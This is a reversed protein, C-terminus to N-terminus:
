YVSVAVSGGGGRSAWGNPLGLVSALEDRWHMLQSGLAGFMGRSGVGYFEVEDVKKISGEGYVTAMKERVADIKRLIDKAISIPGELVVPVTGSHAKQLQLTAVTAALAQITVVEARSDVDVVVRDGAAFGTASALTVSVPVPSTVAAVSLSATTSVEADICENIVSEFVPTYGIYPLSAVTLLHYGTERRLRYLEQTTFAM